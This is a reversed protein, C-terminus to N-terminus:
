SVLACPRKFGTKGVAQQLDLARLQHLIPEIISNSFNTHSFEDRIEKPHSHKVM